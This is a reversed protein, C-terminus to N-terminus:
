WKRIVRVKHPVYNDHISAFLLWEEFYAWLRVFRMVYSTFLSFGIMYAINRIFVPERTIAAALALMATDVILLGLQIAVLITIAVDDYIAFLWAIYLPFVIADVV